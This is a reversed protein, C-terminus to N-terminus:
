PHASIQRDMSCTLRDYRVVRVVPMM